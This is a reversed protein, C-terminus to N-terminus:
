AAGDVRRLKQLQRPDPIRLREGVLSYVADMVKGTDAGIKAVM